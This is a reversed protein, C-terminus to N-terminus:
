PVHTTSLLIAAYIGVIIPLLFEFTARIVSAVGSIRYAISGPSHQWGEPDLKVLELESTGARKAIDRQM